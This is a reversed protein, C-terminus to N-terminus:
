GLVRPYDSRRVPEQSNDGNGLVAAVPEGENRFLVSRVEDLETATWVIQALANRLGQGQIGEDGFLGNIDVILQTTGPSLTAELLEANQPIASTLGREEHREEGETDISRSFLDDLITQVGADVDVQRPVGVLEAQNGNTSILYETVEKTIGSPTTTDTTTTTALLNEFLDSSLEAPEDNTPVSCAAFLLALGGLVSTLLVIPRRTM